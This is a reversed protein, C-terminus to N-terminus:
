GMVTKGSYERCSKLDKTLWIRVKIVVMTMVEKVSDLAMVLVMKQSFM